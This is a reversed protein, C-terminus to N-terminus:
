HFFSKMWGASDWEHKRTRRHGMQWWNSPKSFHPVRNMEDPWPRYVFVFVSDECWDQVSITVPCLQAAIRVATSMQRCGKWGDKRGLLGQESSHEPGRDWGVCVLESIRLLHAISKQRKESCGPAKQIVIADGIKLFFGAMRPFHGEVGCPWSCQVNAQVQERIREPDPIRVTGKWRAGASAPM